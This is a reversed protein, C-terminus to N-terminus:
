PTRANELERVLLKLVSTADLNELCRPRACDLDATTATCPRCDLNAALARLGQPAWLRRPTPGFLAAGPVGHMGALHLPGCDNGAVGASNLLLASLAQHDGPAHVPLGHDPRCRLLGRELEAPGLVLAPEWGLDRLGRALEFFKVLPWQKHRHGAGPVLLVRRSPGPRWGGFLERWATAWDEPRAAGLEEVGRLAAERAHPADWGSPPLTAVVDLRAQTDNVFGYERHKLTLRLVGLGRLEEPWAEAAPLARVARRQPAPCSAYGLPELWPLRWVTLFDGLAGQHDVALKDAALAERLTRSHPLNRM